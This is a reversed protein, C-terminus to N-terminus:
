FAEYVKKRADPHAAKGGAIALGQMDTWVTIAWAGSKKLEDAFVHDYKRWDQWPIIGWRSLEYLADHALSPRMNTARDIVPGSAGDWVYGFRITLIGTTTLDIFSTHVDEPPSIRTNFVEESNFVQYKYGKRYRM